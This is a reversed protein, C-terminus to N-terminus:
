AGWNRKFERSLLNRRANKPRRHHPWKPEGHTQLTCSLPGRKVSLAYGGQNIWPDRFLAWEAGRHGVAVAACYIPIALEVMEMPIDLFALDGRDFCEFYWRELRKISEVTYDLRTDPFPQCAFLLAGLLQDRQWFLKTRAEDENSFTPLSAAWQLPADSGTRRRSQDDSEGV